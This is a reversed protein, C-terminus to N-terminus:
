FSCYHHRKPWLNLSNVAGETIVPTRNLRWDSGVPFHEWISDRDQWISTKPKNAVQWVSQRPLKNISSASWLKRGDAPSVTSARQCQITNIKRNSQNFHGKIHQVLKIVGKSGCYLFSGILTIGLVSHLIPNAHPIAHSFTPYAHSVRHAPLPSPIYLQSSLWMCSLFCLTRWGWSVNEFLAGLLVYFCWVSPM